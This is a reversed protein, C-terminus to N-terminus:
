RRARLRGDGVGEGWGCGVFAAGAEVHEVAAAEGAGALGDGGVFAVALGLEFLLEM